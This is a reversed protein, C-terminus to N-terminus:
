PRKPTHTAPLRTIRQMPDRQCRHQVFQERMVAPVTKPSMDVDAAESVVRTNGRTQLEQSSRWPRAFPEFREVALHPLVGGPALSAPTNWNMHASVQREVFTNRQNSNEHGLRVILEFLTLSIQRLLALLFLLPALLKRGPRACTVVRRGISSGFRTLRGITRFSVLTCARVSHAVTQREFQRHKRFRNCDLPKSLPRKHNGKMKGTSILLIPTEGM